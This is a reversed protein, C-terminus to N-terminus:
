PLHDLLNQQLGLLKASSQVAVQYANQTQSLEVLTQALDAGAVTTLTQRMFSKRADANAAATELRTQLVGNSATQFILNDEDKALAPADVTQVGNADGALLHNQLSILHNFFDAGYRSDSFVGRPGSGTNNEGPLDLSLSTDQMIETQSQGTNGQYAVSTVNGEADTTVTYPAADSKTGAFVYQSADKSNALEVAQQIMQQVEIGLAQLESKSKTGDAQTAIEGARDSIPKLGQFASYGANARTQLTAINSAYQEADSEERQLTLAQGMAAPDDEPAQIRQGSSAQNQLRAQRAALLNLQSVVSSTMFNGTIRM